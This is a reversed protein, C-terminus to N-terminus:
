KYKEFHKMKYIGVTLIPIVFVFFLIYATAGYAKAILNTIGFTSIGVGVILVCIATVPTVWKPIERNADNVRMATEIRDTIAYIMGSGTEILTGFLVIQFLWQMWPIGMSDIMYYIPLELDNIGPYFACMAVFLIIGPIIGIFGAIIGACCAEKDNDCAKLTHLACLLIALNYFAYKFGGGIWGFGDVSSAAFNGAIQGGFKAFVIIMFLAYVGYLVFSWVSLVKDILESGNIVLLFIGVAMGLIGVWKNVGFLEMVISGASATVVALVVITLYIYAIEFVIWGRGLLKQIFSKYDWLQFMHAFKYSLAGIIAWSLLSIVGIGLLGCLPGYGMFYEVIERGTGYGGAIVCSQFVVGPVIFKRFASSKPKSM